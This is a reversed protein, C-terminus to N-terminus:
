FPRSMLVLGVCFFFISGILGVVMGLIGCVLGAVALGRNRQNIPDLGRSSFILGILGMVFSIIGILLILFVFPNAQGGRAGEAVLAIWIIVAIFLLVISIISCLFGTTSSRACEDESAPRGSATYRRIRPEYDDDDDEYRSRRRRPRDDYDKERSSDGRPEPPALPFSDSVPPVNAPEARFQGRTESPVSPVDIRKTCQPCRVTVQGLDLAVSVQAQCLPCPWTVHERGRVLRVQVDGAPPTEALPAVGVAGGVWDWNAEGAPPTKDPAARSGPVQL